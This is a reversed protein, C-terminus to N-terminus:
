SMYPKRKLILYGLHLTSVLEYFMYSSLKTALYIVFLIIVYRAASTLLNSSKNRKPFGFVGEEVPAGDPYVTVSMAKIVQEDSYTTFDYLLSSFNWFRMVGGIACTIIATGNPLTINVDGDSCVDNYSPLQMVTDTANFVLRVQDKSLVNKGNNHFILILYQRNSIFNAQNQLWDYHHAAYSTSPTWLINEDTNMQFNTMLGTVLLMISIFSVINITCWPNKASIDSLFHLGRYLPKHFIRIVYESWKRSFRQYKTEEAYQPDPKEVDSSTNSDKMIHSSEKKSLTIDRQSGRTEKQQTITCNSSLKESDRSRQCKSGQESDIISSHNRSSRIQNPIDKWAVFVFVNAPAPHLNPSM